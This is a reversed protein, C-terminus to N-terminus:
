KKLSDFWNENSLYWDITSKLGDEFSKYKRSFGLQSMAKSDDIAYRYDHGKRDEVHRIQLEYSGTQKTRIKNLYKCIEQVVHINTRESAGGFCYTEGPQGKELALLIGQVHDEVHIWDRVNLGQGYVPLIEGSIANQIMRPILKEPFQRPGYNNSCNTTITPIKYTHFWARVLLDAAAKTASYPSNPAMPTSETFFGEDTLTGYVEDTSVQVYRFNQHNNSSSLYERVAELLIFTGKINTDVFATPSSISNDVHSEAAFNVVASISHKKLLEIVKSYNEIRDHIFVCQDDSLVDSINKLHGAYTLADLVIVKYGQEIALRVFASGIFGAGGTVLLNKSM